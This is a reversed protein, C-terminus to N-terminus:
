YPYFASNPKISDIQEWWLKSITITPHPQHNDLAAHAPRPKEPAKYESPNWNCKQFPPSQVCFICSMQLSIGRKTDRDFGEPSFANRGQILDNISLNTGEDGPGSQGIVTSASLNIPAVTWTYSKTQSITTRRLTTKQALFPFPFSSHM